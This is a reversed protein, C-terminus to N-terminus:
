SLIPQNVRLLTQACMALVENVRINAGTISHKIRKDKPVTQMACTEKGIMDGIGLVRCEFHACHNYGKAKKTYYYTCIDKIGKGDYTNLVAATSGVSM